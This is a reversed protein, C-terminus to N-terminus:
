NSNENQNEADQDAAIDGKVELEELQQPTPEEPDQSLIPYDIGYVAKNITNFFKSVDEFKSPNYNM